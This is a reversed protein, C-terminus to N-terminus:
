SVKLTSSDFGFVSYPWELMKIHHKWHQLTLVWFGFAAPPWDLCPFCRLRKLIIGGGVKLGEMHEQIFMTLPRRRTAKILLYISSFGWGKTTSSDLYPQPMCKVHIHPLSTMKTGHFGVLIDKNQYWWSSFYKYAYKGWWLTLSAEMFSDKWTCFHSKLYM